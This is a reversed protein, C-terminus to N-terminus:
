SEASNGEGRRVAPEQFDVRALYFHIGALGLNLLGWPGSLILGLQFCGGAVNAVTVVRGRWLLAVAIGAEFVIVLPLLIDLNPVVYSLWLARYMEVLAMEVFVEYLEPAFLTVYLHILAGVAYLVALVIRIPRSFQRM